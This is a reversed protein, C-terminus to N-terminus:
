CFADEIHILEGKEFLVVDFRYKRDAPLGKKYIYYGACRIITKKKRRDVSEGANGFSRTRRAKVEVFIIVKHSDEVIM